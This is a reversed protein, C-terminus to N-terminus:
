KTLRKELAYGERYQQALDADEYRNPDLPHNYRAAMRGRGWAGCMAAAYLELLAVTNQRYHELPQMM